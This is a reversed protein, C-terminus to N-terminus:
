TTRGWILLVTAITLYVITNLVSLVGTWFAGFTFGYVLWAGCNAIVLYITIASVGDLIVM